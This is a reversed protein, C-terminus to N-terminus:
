PHVLIEWPAFRTLHSRVSPFNDRTNQAYPNTPNRVTNKSRSQGRPIQNKRFRPNYASGFATRLKRVLNKTGLWRSGIKLNYIKVQHAHTYWKGTELGYNPGNRKINISFKHRRIKKEPEAKLQQHLTVGNMTYFQRTSTRQKIKFNKWSILHEPIELLLSEADAVVKAYGTAVDEGKILSSINVRAGDLPLKFDLEFADLKM